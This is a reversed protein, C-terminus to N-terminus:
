EWYYAKPAIEGNFFVELIAKVEEVNVGLLSVTGEKVNNLVDGNNILYQIVEQM